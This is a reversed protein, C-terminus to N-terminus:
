QWLQVLNSSLTIAASYSSVNLRYYMNGPVDYADDATFVIDVRDGSVGQRAPFWISGDGSTELSASSSSWASCTCVLAHRGGSSLFIVDETAGDGSAVISGDVIVAM